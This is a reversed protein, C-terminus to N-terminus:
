GFFKQFFPDDMLPHSPVNVEKSTFINVVSPMAQKAAEHFSGVHLATQADNTGLSVMEKITAVKGRPTWPLLEPRLTSVVFFIALLITATQSFILWLRYM